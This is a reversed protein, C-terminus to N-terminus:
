VTTFGGDAVLAASQMYSSLPSALFTIADGIEEMRALRKFPTKAIDQGLPSNPDQAIGSNLLPTDVYSYPTDASTRGATAEPLPSFCVWSM